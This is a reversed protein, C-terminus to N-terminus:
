ENKVYKVLKARLQILDEAIFVGVYGKMDRIKAKEFVFEQRKPYSM